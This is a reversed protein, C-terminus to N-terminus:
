RKKKSHSKHHQKRNTRQHRAGAWNNCHSSCWTSPWRDAQIEAYLQQHGHHLLDEWLHTHKLIFLGDQHIHLHPFDRASSLSTRTMGARAKSGEQLDILELQMKGPEEEPVCSFPNQFLDFSKEHTKFDSFRHEFNERLKQILDHKKQSCLNPLIDRDTDEVLVKCALFHTLDGKQLQGQLLQFNESSLKSTTLCQPFSSGTARCSWMIIVSFATWILMFRWAM